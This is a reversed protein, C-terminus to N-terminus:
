SSEEMKTPMNGWEKFDKYGSKSDINAIRGSDYNQHEM